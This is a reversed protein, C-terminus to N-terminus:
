HELAGNRALPETTDVPHNLPPVMPHGVKNERDLNALPRNRAGM